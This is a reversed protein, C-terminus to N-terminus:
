ADRGRRDIWGYTAIILSTSAVSSIARIQASTNTRVNLTFINGAASTAVANDATQNGLTATSAVASEDPSNILLVTGLTANSMNGRFLSNVQVGIPVSLTFLIPSGALVGYNVDNVPADWLFEDGLQHFLTWQASANTRMAGIRRFETYSAPMTPASPSLSVLADVVGTDTRKILFAHYWTNNAIAGTDLAGNGTGVAWASTTKSLASALMMMDVNTSNIAEGAAVTFTTSSGVTSLGLGALYSRPLYTTIRGDVYQKTAAGLAVAPDASLVLLGTMTDGGKAVKQDAYQKTAAGLAVAPDAALIMPGTLTGGALPLAKTWGANFRGYTSGDVPAETIAGTFVIPPVLTYVGTIPNFILTYTGAPLTTSLPFNAFDIDLYFNGSQATVDIGRRGIVQAPFRPSVKLKISKPKVTLFPVVL